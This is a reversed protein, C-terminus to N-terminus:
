KGADGKGERYERYQVGDSLEEWPKDVLDSEPRQVAEIQRLRMAVGGSDGEVPLNRLLSPDIGAEAAKPACVLLPLLAASLIDRRSAEHACLNTGHLRPANRPM